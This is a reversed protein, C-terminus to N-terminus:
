LNAPVEPELLKMFIFIIFCTFIIGQSSNLISETISCFIVLVMFAAFLWRKNRIALYLPYFYFLCLVTLGVIGIGVTTEIYQNHPDFRQEAAYYFSRNLYSEVLDDKIDGTGVGFSPHEKILDLACVWKALRLNLGNWSEESNGFAFHYESAKNQFDFSANRLSHFRSFVQPFFFSLTSFLLAVGLLALAAHKLKGKRVGLVLATSFVILILVVLSTRSALLFLILLLFIIGAIVAFRKRYSFSQFQFWIINLFVLISFAVYLSYYVAKKGYILVLGDSFIYNIDNREQVVKIQYLLAILSFFVCAWAFFSLAKYLSEKRIVASSLVVPFLLLSTKTELYKVGADTNETYLLGTLYLLFLVVSFVAPPNSRFKNFKVRFDGEALWTIVLLAIALNTAISLPLFISVCVLLLCIFYAKQLLNQKQFGTAKARM